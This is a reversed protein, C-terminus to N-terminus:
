SKPLDEEEVAHLTCNTAACDWRVAVDRQVRLGTERGQGGGASGERVRPRAASLPLLPPTQSGASRDRNPACGSRQPAAPRLAACGSASSSRCPGTRHARFESIRPESNPQLWPLEPILTPNSAGSTRPGSYPKLCRDLTRPQSGGMGGCQCSGCQLRATAVSAFYYSTSWHELSPM